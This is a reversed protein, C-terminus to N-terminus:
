KNQPLYVLKVGGTFLMQVDKGNEVTEIRMKGANLTGLPGSGQVPGASEVDIENIGSVLVDTTLEYGTSSTIRVGDRMTVRQEGEKVKARTADLNIESGDQMQLRATVEEADVDGSVQPLARKATVTVMDGRSTTGSFHPASVMESIADGTRRLNDAFPLESVPDTSRSFLFLTSMLGLAVLPLLIKLWAIVQSYLGQARAM